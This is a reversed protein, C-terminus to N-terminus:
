RPSQPMCASPPRMPKVYTPIEPNVWRETHFSQVLRLTPSLRWTLKGFFKDQEYTRPFAPDTGPQSDYDRLHQYGAFFWLRNRWAPGGANATLDRYKVREYTSTQQNPGPYARRVPASTLAAWQGYYSADYRFLDGGQRTIVNIIGGQANGFEASAGVSRIQVEQIFDVGPESRAEGSCPCTFNTGDIQFTNENTGSGFISVSNISGSAPSTPSVGPAARIPDIMSFRRTPFANLDDRDFRAGIGPDRM